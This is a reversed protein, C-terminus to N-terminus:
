EDHIGRVRQAASGGERVRMYQGGGSNTAAKQSRRERATEKERVGVSM